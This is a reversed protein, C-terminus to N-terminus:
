AETEPSSCALAFSTGDISVLDAGQTSFKGEDEDLKKKVEEFCKETLNFTVPISSVMKCAKM